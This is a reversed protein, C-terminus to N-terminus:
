IFDVAHCCLNGTMEIGDCTAPPAFAPCKDMVATECAAQDTFAGFKHNALDNACSSFAEDVLKPTVIEEFHESNAKALELAEQAADTATQKAVTDTYDANTADEIAQAKKAADTYDANTADSIAQAKKAADTYDANTAVSLDGEATKLAADLTSHSTSPNTLYGLDTFVDAFSATPTNIANFFDVADSNKESLLSKFAAIEVENSYFKVVFVAIIGLVQHNNKIISPNYGPTQEELNNIDQALANVYEIDTPSLAIKNFLDNFLTVLKVAVADNSNATTKLFTQVHKRSLLDMLYDNYPTTFSAKIYTLTTQKTENLETAAAKEQKAKIDAADQKAKLDAAAKEQQVKLDAAAKIIAANNNNNNTHVTTAHTNANAKAKDHLGM